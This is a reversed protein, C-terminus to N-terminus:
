DVAYVRSWTSTFFMIGDVVIPTAELARNTGMDKSWVLGLESVNEKNIGKLPSFRREEYTRGHALWNGPESEADLIRQDDILGIQTSGLLSQEETIQEEESSSCSVLFIILIFGLFNFNNKM